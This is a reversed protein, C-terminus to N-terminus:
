NSGHHSMEIFLKEWQQLVVSWDLQEAKRRANTSLREALSPEQLIRHVVAAMATPDDPPVLLADVENELLFPLGGVNTSVVCLGCAMAEILSVPTNDFNTTNIFVDGKQLWVSVDKKEIKGPFTIKDEIKLAYTLQMTRQLSGDGKDPGIMMLHVEPYKDSLIKIVKPALSPNYIEHFARLWILHPYLHNRVRFGYREIVVANPIIHIDSRFNKMKEKLYESPTTVVTASALLRSVRGPWKRSFSPLDGGHLTLAFPKQITKLMLCAIEALGFALGSYVEINALEYMSRKNWITSVIDLLRTLRGPRNSTTLVNWGLDTLREALDESVGRVGTAASLFNGVLLVNM